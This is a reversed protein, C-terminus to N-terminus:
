KLKNQILSILQGVNDFQAIEATTINVNFAKEIEIILRIHAMSDWEIFDDSTMESRIELSEIGLVDRFVTQIKQQIPDAQM